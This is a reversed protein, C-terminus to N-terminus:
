KGRLVSYLLIQVCRPMTRKYAFPAHKASLFEHFHDKKKVEWRRQKSLWGEVMSRNTTADDWIRSLRAAPPPNTANSSIHYWAHIFLGQYPPSGICPYARRESAAETLFVTLFRINSGGWNRHTHTHAHTNTHLVSSWCFFHSLLLLSFALPLPALVESPPSIVSLQWPCLKVYVKDARCFLQPSARNPSTAVRGTM